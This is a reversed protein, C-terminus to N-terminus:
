VTDMPGVLEDKSNHPCTDPTVKDTRRKWFMWCRIIDKQTGFAIGCMFPLLPLFINWVAVNGAFSTAGSVSLGLGITAMMTFLMIRILSSLRLERETMNTSLHRFLAWNRCVIVTTWIIMCLATGLGIACIGAAVLYRRLNSMRSHTITTNGFPTVLQVGANSHCYMGSPNRQIDAFDQVVVVTEGVVVAFLAWPGFLMLHTSKHDAGNAFLTKTIRFHVDVIFALGSIATLPPTSYVFMMQLVCIGPPPQPGSQHGLILIYSLAYVIWSVIMSFWTKSRHISTSLMAPFLTALLLALGGAAISNFLVIPTNSEM